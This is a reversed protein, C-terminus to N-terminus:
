FVKMKSSICGGEPLAYQGRKINRAKGSPTHFCKVVNCCLVDSGNKGGSGGEEARHVKM